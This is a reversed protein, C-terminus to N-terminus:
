LYSKILKRSLKIVDITKSSIDAFEKHEMLRMSEELDMDVSGHGIYNRLDQYSDLDTKNFNIKNDTLVKEIYTRRLNNRGANWTSNIQNEPINNNCQEMRYHRKAITEISRWASFFSLEPIFWARIAEGSLIIAKDLLIDSEGLTLTKNATDPANYINNVIDQYPLDDFLPFTATFFPSM